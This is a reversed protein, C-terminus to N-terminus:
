ISTSIGSFMSSLGSGFARLVAVCILILFAILLGTEVVSAGQEKRLFKKVATALRGM